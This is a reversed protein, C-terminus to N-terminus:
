SGPVRRGSCRILLRYGRRGHRGGGRGSVGGALDHSAEHHSGGIDHGAHRAAGDSKHEADILPQDVGDAATGTREPPQGSGVQSPCRPRARSTSQANMTGSTTPIRMATTVSAETILVWSSSLGSSIAPIKKPSTAADVAKAQRSSESREDCCSVTMATTARITKTTSPQCAPGTASGDGRANRAAPITAMQAM